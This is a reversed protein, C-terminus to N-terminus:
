RPFKGGQAAVKERRRRARAILKRKESREETQRLYERPARPPLRGGAKKRNAGARECAGCFRGDEAAAGAGANAARRPMTM